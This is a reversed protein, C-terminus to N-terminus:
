YLIFHLVKIKFHKKCNVHVLKSPQWFSPPSKKFKRRFSPLKRPIPPIGVRSSVTILKHFIQWWWVVRTETSWTWVAILWHNQPLFTSLNVRQIRHSVDQLFLSNKLEHWGQIMIMFIETFTGGYENLCEYFSKDDQSYRFM